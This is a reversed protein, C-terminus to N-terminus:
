AVGGLAGASDVAVPQRLVRRLLFLLQPQKIQFLRSPVCSVSHGRFFASFVFFAPSILFAEGIRQAGQTGKRSISSLFLIAAFSRLSCFFPLLSSSLKGLEKREKREKAAMQVASVLIFTM